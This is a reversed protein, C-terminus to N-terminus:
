WQKKKQLLGVYWIDKPTAEGGIGGNLRWVGKMYECKFFIHGMSGM